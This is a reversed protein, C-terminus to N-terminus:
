EVTMTATEVAFTRGDRTGVRVEFAAPGTAAKGDLRMTLRAEYGNGDPLDGIADKPVKVEIGPGVKVATLTAELDNLDEGTHNELNVVVNIWEGRKPHGDGSGRSNGSGYATM